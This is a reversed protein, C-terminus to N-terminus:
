LMLWALVILALLLTQLVLAVGIRADTRALNGVTTRMGLAAIAATLCASSGDALLLRADPPILGMSSAGAILLFAVLYWPVTTVISACDLQGPRCVLGIGLLLLPLCVVRLMKVITAIDGAAPSILYAAGLVQAVDHVTSGIFLGAQREDMTLGNALLPYTLMAATSIATVAAITAITSTELGARRPLVSTIALAASAGCIAVAGSSLIAVDAPLRLARGIGYGLCVTVLLTTLVSGVAAPGLSALDAFTIRAGLLAVGLRLVTTAAYGVGVSTAPLRGLRNMSLGILLALLLAPAGTQSGVQVAAWAACFSMGLGPALARGREM